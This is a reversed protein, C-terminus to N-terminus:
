HVLYYYFPRQILDSITTRCNYLVNVNLKTVGITAVGSSTLLILEQGLKMVFYVIIM